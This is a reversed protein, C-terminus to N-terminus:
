GYININVETPWSQNYCGAQEQSQLPPFMANPDGMSGLANSMPPENPLTTNQYLMFDNDLKSPQYAQEHIDSFGEDFQNGFQTYALPDSIYPDHSYSHMGSGDVPQSTLTQMSTTAYESNFNQTGLNSWDLDLSSSDTSTMPSEGLGMSARTFDPMATDIPMNSLDPPILSNPDASELQCQFADLGTTSTSFPDFENAGGTYVSASSSGQFPSAEPFLQFDSTGTQAPPNAFSFHPDPYAQGTASEYPSQISGTAPTSLSASGSVPTALSSSQPTAQTSTKPLGKGNNKSRVYAWGHTKEMHQKCNSERKSQYPCPKFLCYYVSPSKSHKDNIHRDREKETPWGIEYYKCSKESCKWPRTHTKEHKSTRILTWCRM